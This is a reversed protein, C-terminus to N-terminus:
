RANAGLRLEGNATYVLENSGGEAWIVVRWIPSGDKGLEVTASNPTGGTREAAAALIQPLATFDISNVAFSSGPVPAEGGRRLHTGDPDITYRQGEVDYVEIGAHTIQIRRLEAGIMEVREPVTQPERLYDDIIPFTRQKEAGLTTYLTFAVAFITALGALAIVVFLRRPVRGTSPEPPSM